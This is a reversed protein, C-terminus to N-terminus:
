RSKFHRSSVFNLGIRMNRMTITIATATALVAAAVAARVFCLQLANRAVRRKGDRIVTVFVPGLGKDL